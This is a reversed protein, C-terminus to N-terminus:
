ATAHSGAYHGEASSDMGGDHLSHEHDNALFINGIEFLLDRIGRYGVVVRHGAGLRDFTRFGARVLPTGSRSVSM